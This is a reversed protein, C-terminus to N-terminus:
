SSLGTYVILSCTFRIYFRLITFSKTANLETVRTGSVFRSKITYDNTREFFDLVLVIRSVFEGVWRAISDVKVATLRRSVVPSIKFNNCHKRGLEVQMDLRGDVDADGESAM